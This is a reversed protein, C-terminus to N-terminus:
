TPARDIGKHVRTSRDILERLADHDVDDLRKLYLCGQGTKHAGLRALVPHYRNGFGGIISIALHQRRPSFRGAARRGRPRQCAPLPLHRFRHHQNGMAAPIQRSV